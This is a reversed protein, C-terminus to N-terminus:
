KELLRKLSELVAGWNKESHERSTENAIGEQTITLATGEPAPSLAYSVKQYNEPADPLGSFGSWYSTELLKKPELKLIVGKDEYPKGEWVGKYTIPSGVQWDSSAETGFLYEKILQPNTLAEWVEAETANITISAKAVLASEM